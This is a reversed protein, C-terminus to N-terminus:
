NRPRSRVWGMAAGFQRTFLWYTVEHLSKPRSKPWRPWFPGFPQLLPGGASTIEFGGAENGPHAFGSFVTFDKRHDKLVDLYPSEKYDRGTGTTFFLQGHMGLATCICILRKPQAAAARARPTMADLFPLALAVGGARLVARRSIARPSTRNM